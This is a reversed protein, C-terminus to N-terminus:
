KKGEQQSRELRRGAQLGSASTDRLGIGLGQVILRACPRGDRVSLCTPAAHRPLMGQCAVKGGPARYPPTAMPAAHLHWQMAKWTVRSTESPPVGLPVVPSQSGM